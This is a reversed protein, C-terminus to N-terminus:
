RERDSFYGDDNEENDEEGIDEEEDESNYEDM